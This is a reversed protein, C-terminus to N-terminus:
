SRARIASLYARRRQMFSSEPQLREPHIAADRFPGGIPVPPVPPTRGAARRLVGRVMRRFTGSFLWIPDRIM